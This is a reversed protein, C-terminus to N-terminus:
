QQWDRSYWESFFCNIHQAFHIKLFNFKTNNCIPALICSIQWYCGNQNPRHCLSCCCCCVNSQAAATTVMCCMVISGLSWDVTILIIIMMAIVINDNSNISKTLKFNICLLSGRVCFDMSHFRFNSVIACWKRTNFEMKRSAIWQTIRASKLKRMELDRKIHLIPTGHCISCYAALNEIPM